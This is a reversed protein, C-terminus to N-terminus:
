KIWQEINLITQIKEKLQRLRMLERSFRRNGQYCVSDYRVTKENSEQKLTLFYGNGHSGSVRCGDDFTAYSPQFEFFKAKKVADLLEELQRETIQAEITKSSAGKTNGEFILRRDGYITVKYLPRSEDSDVSAQISFLDLEVYRKIEKQRSDPALEPANSQGAASTVLLSFSSLGLIVAFFFSIGPTKLNRDIRALPRSDFISKM